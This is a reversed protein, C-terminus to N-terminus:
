PSFRMCFAELYCGIRCIDINKTKQMVVRMQLVLFPGSM